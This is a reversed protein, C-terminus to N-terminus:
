SRRERMERRWHPECAGLRYAERWCGKYECVPLTPLGYDAAEAAELMEIDADQYGAPIEPDYGFGSM